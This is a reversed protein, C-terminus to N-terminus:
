TDGHAMMRNMARVLYLVLCEKFRVGFPQHESLEERHHVHVERNLPQATRAWWFERSRRQSRRRQRTADDRTLAENM